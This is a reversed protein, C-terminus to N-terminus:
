YLRREVLMEGKGARVQEVVTPWPLPFLIKGGGELFAKERELVGDRFHWIPCVWVKAPDERGVEESIIPLWSGVTFRGLKERSREIAYRLGSRTGLEFYQLLTNGKTSAGYVDVTLKELLTQLLFTALAQKLKRLREEFELFPLNTDLRLEQEKAAAARVRGLAAPEVAVRGAKHTVWYRASGGNASNLEFDLVQLGVQDLLWCFSTLSWYTLHEHCIADVGNTKLMSPLYHAEMVWVGRPHLVRKVERAFAMPDDLDYFMAVSTLVKVSGPAERMDSAEPPFFTPYLRGHRGQLRDLLEVHLNEAPEYAVLTPGGDAATAYKELYRALLTGDNAGVDVVVDGAELTVKECISDVIGRLHKVMGENVGSKYWYQRYLAERSYTHTLQVLLCLNCRALRLPAKPLSEDYTSPFDSVYLDGLNLLNTLVGGCARCAIKKEAKM